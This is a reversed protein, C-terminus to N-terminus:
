LALRNFAGYLLRMKSKVFHNELYLRSLLRQRRSNFTKRLKKEEREREKERKREKQRAREGVRGRESEKEVSRLLDDHRTKMKM